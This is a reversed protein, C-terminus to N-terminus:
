LVISNYNKITLNKNTKQFIKANACYFVLKFWEKFATFTPKNKFQTEM